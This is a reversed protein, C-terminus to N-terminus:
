SAHKMGQSVIDKISNWLTRYQGILKQCSPEYDKATVEDRVYARELRETTKIIAYLDACM